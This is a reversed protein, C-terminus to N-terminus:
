ATQLIKPLHVKETFANYRKNSVGSNELYWNITKVIGEELSTECRFGYKYARSMDMLRKADGKPKTPDFLLDIPADPVNACIIEAVEKITSGTGSGLNLPENIGQEVAILMGRAVDDAFIFDRIPSGDGWVTLPSEGSIVRNILSPIVMANNPDFNDYPGYVNAPRVISIKDWGYEIKYAEAQLEGMRKAWGAFRDNPSPFTQWVDDEYFVEAPQYVGISSTFLYREVGQRRAAEMMNTNFSITPVFFSAPRQATMAPSGKVGALHFVFDMGSCATMCNHFERLDTYVFKAGDPIRSPDDLSAVTVEAGLNILMKVLPRGILGTGGTVLVKKNKYFM